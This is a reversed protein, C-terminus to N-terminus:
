HVSGWASGREETGGQAAEDTVTEALKETVTGTTEDQQDLRGHAHWDLYRRVVEDRDWASAAFTLRHIAGNWPFGGRHENGVVLPLAPEWTALTGPVECESVLVGDVYLRHRGDGHCLVVHQVGGTLADAGSVLHPRTGDLDTATTRVRAEIRSGSQGIMLNALRPNLSLSVIRAPGAQELDGPEIVLEVSFAGSAAIARDLWEAPAVLHAGNALHLRAGAAAYRVPGQESFRLRTDDLWGIRWSQTSLPPEAQDVRAQVPTSTGSPALAVLLVVALPLMAAILWRPDPMRRAPAPAPAPAIRSGSATTVGAKLAAVAAALEGADRYRDAPAHAMARAIIDALGDSLDPRSDRPDPSPGAAVLRVTDWPGEGQFPPRGTAWYFMTAGLSYVDSRRDLAERRAQEPAMFAPTGIITDPDLDRSARACASACALGFDALKAAGDDGIFINSPKIDRHLLGARHIAALGIAADAALTCVRGESLGDPQRALLRKTDGGAVLELALYLHGDDEGFSHVAVVNPHSVAAAAMAERAIQDLEERPRQGIAVIKLAVDRGGAVPTARYVEGMGGEGLKASLLYPGIITRSRSGSTPPRPADGGSLPSETDWTPELDPRV